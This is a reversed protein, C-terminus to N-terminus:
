YLIKSLVAHYLIPTSLSDSFYPHPIMLPRKSSERHRESRRIERELSIQFFGHNFLGTLSDTFPVGAEKEYDIAIQKHTSM